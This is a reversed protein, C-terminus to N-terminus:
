FHIFWKRRYLLWAALYLVLVNAIAYYLSANVPSGLRAFVSDFLLTGLSVGNVKVRGLLRALVGSLVFMVIANMGFVVFPRAWERWRQVDVFWYWVGFALSALGAMFVSYSCTWLNKNIPMWITMVDGVGVLVAGGSMLWAAKEAMSRSSRLLHGALAGFLVTAVAPLTSVIGEPDWTKTQSYMHGSLVLGDIYKAFNGEPTWLGPGFGPVPYLAMLLWYVTLLGLLWLVQGRISTYLFIAGAILYCIAIRQLVGPIRVTAFSFTGLFNLVFGLGFIIASRRLVHMLCTSRDEGRELRKAFSLTMAVGVIWLFFPFVTDTFTWGNWAAHELPPYIYQWSGPDNVLIMSAITAGRFADLSQLRSSDAM